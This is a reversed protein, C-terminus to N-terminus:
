IRASREEGHQLMYDKKMEELVADNTSCFFLIYFLFKYGCLDMVSNGVNYFMNFQTHLYFWAPSLARSLKSPLNFECSFCTHYNNWKDVILASISWHKQMSPWICFVLFKFIESLNQLLHLRFLCWTFLSLFSVFSRWGKGWCFIFPRSNTIDYPM